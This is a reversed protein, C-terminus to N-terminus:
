ALGAAKMLISLSDLNVFIDKRNTEVPNLSQSSQNNNNESDACKLSYYDLNCQQSILWYANTIHMSFFEIVKTGPNCFVLNTLGAGHPAVVAEANSMLSAQESVSMSEFTISKFGFKSLYSVLEEENIVKRGSANKRSIYIREDRTKEQIETKYLFETKLFEYVWKGMIRGKGPLSPNILKKAKIHPYKNTEIIKSKPIGLQSLTEKQFPLKYINVLYKDIEDIALGSQRLIGLRPLLFLMWMYYVGAGPIVLSCATGDINFIEPLSESSIILELNGNSIDALVEDNSTIITNTRGDLWARANKVIAVSTEPTNEEKLKFVPHVKGDLTNPPSLHLKSASHVKVLTVDNNVQTTLLVKKKGEPQFFNRSIYKPLITRYCNKAEAIKGQQELIKALSNYIKIYNPIFKLGEIFSAIADDLKKQKAFALGISLYFNAVKVNTTNPLRFEEINTNLAQFNLKRNLQLAKRYSKVAEDLQGKKIQVKGLCIYCSPNHPKFEIAKQYSAVAGDIQGQQTLADGLHKYAWFPPTHSLEIIKQYTYVVDSTRGQQQLVEALQIYLKVKKPRLEIAKRYCTAAEEHEKRSQYLKALNHWAQANNEDNEVVYQYYHLTDLKDKDKRRDLMELSTKEGNVEGQRLKKIDSPLKREEADKSQKNM